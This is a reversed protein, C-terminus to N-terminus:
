NFAYVLSVGYWFKDKDVKDAVVTYNISPTILIGQLDIDTSIGFTTQVFGNKEFYKDSNDALGLNIFPTLNLSSEESEFTHSLLLEYYQSDYARYDHYATFTPTLPLQELALALFIESTEPYSIYADDYYTVWIHGVSVTLDDFSYDYTLTADFESFRGDRAQGETPLHSWLNLNLSGKDSSQYNLNLSPQISFGDYLTLGRFMYASYASLNLDATWPSKQDEALVLSPVVFYILILLIRRLQVNKTGRGGPLM